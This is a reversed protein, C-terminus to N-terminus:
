RNGQQMFDELEEAGEIYREPIYSTFPIKESSMKVTAFEGFVQRIYYYFSRQIYSPGRTDTDGSPCKWKSFGNKKVNRDCCLLAIIKKDFKLGKLEVKYEKSKEDFDQIKKLQEKTPKM